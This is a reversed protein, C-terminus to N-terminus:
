GERMRDIVRAVFRRAPCFPATRMGRMGRGSSLDKSNLVGINLKEPTFVVKASERGIGRNQGDIRLLCDLYISIMDQLVQVQIM